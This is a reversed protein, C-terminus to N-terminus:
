TTAEGEQNQTQDKLAKAVFALAVKQAKDSDTVMLAALKDAKKPDEAILKGMIERQEETELVKALAKAPNKQLAIVMAAIKKQQKDEAEGSVETPAEGEVPGTKKEDLHAPRPYVKKIDERKYKALEFDHIFYLCDAPCNEVCINCFMCYQLDISYQMLKKKKAGEETITELALVDNPCSKACLGCVICKEFDFALQGRFRKQLVPKEEPYQVVIDKEFMHKLTVWLGKVIGLGYM